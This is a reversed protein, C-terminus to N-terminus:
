WLISDVFTNTYGGNADNVVFPSLQTDDSRSVCQGFRFVQSEVEDFHGRLGFWRDTADHVVAFKLVVLTFTSGLALLM